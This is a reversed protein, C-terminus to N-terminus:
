LSTSPNFRTSKIIGNVVRVVKVRLYLSLCSPYLSETTRSPSSSRIPATASHARAPLPTARVTTCNSTSSSPARDSWSHHLRALGLNPHGDATWAKQQTPARHLAARQRNLTPSPSQVRSPTRSNPSDTRAPAPPLPATAECRKRRPRSWTCSRWGPAVLCLRCSPAHLASWQTKTRHPPTALLRFLLLWQSHHQFLTANLSATLVLSHSPISVALCRLSLQSIHKEGGGFPRQSVLMTRTHCASSPYSRWFPNSLHHILRRVPTLLASASTLWNPHVGAALRKCFPILRKVRRDSGADLLSSGAPELSRGLGLGKTRRSADREKGDACRPPITALADLRDTSMDLRCWRAMSVGSCGRTCAFVLM